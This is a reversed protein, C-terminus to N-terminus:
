FIKRAVTRNPATAVMFTVERPAEKGDSGRLVLRVKAFLQADKEEGEGLIQFDVLRAGAQWDPDIVYIPPSGKELANSPDGKKWSELAAKLTDRAKGPDVPANRPGPSCGAAFTAMILAAASAALILQRRALNSM